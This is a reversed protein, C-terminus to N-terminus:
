SLALQSRYNAQVHKHMYMYIYTYVGVHLKYSVCTYIMYRQTAHPQLGRCPTLSVLGSCENLNGQDVYIEKALGTGYAISSPGGVMDVHTYVNLLM